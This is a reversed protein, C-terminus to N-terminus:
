DLYLSVKKIYDDSSSMKNIFGSAHIKPPEDLATMFVIPTKLLLQPQTMQLLELLEPGTMDPMQVDLLILDPSGIRELVQLGDIASDATLVEHGELELLMKQLILMDVSDDIVLIQSM